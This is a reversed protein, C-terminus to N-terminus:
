LGIAHWYFSASGSASYNHIRFQSANVLEVLGSIPASGDLASAASATVAYAATTFATPYSILLNSGALINGSTGWQLILGGPLKVYGNSAASQTMPQANARQYSTINWGSSASNPYATCTDGAATTINASGPLNLTTANHTLTLAGTFRLYRPGNYNAGLSTITTTGTIEVAVTYQAGIDVTAASAISAPTGQSFLQEWRLTEGNSIGPALGTLKNGNMPLNGTAPTQGDAALSGTLATAIDSLTGNMASSSITTGTIVPNGAPLLYVGSGNRSM